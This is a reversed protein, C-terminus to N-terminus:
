AGSSSTGQFGPLPAISEGEASPQSPIPGGMGRFGGHRGGPGGHHGGFGGHFGWGSSMQELVLDAQEQTIINDAVAQQVAAEMAEQMKTQLEAPTINALLDSLSGDERAAEYEEVSLGLAEAMLVGRDLVGHLAQMALM